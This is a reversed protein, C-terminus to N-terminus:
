TANIFKCLYTAFLNRLCVACVPQMFIKCLCIAHDPQLGTATMNCPPTKYIPQLFRSHGVQDHNSDATSVPATPGDARTATSAADKVDQCSESPSMGGDDSNYDGIEIVSYRSDSEIMQGASLQESTDNSDSYDSFVADDITSGADTDESRVSAPMQESTLELEDDLFSEDGM